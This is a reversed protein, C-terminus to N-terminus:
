RMTAGIFDEPIDQDEILITAESRYIDQMSLAFFTVILMIGIAPISFLWRRRKIIRWYEDLSM